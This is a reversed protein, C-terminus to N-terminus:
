ISVEVKEALDIEFGIMCLDMKDFLIPEEYIRLRIDEPTNEQYHNMLFQITGQDPVEIKVKALGDNIMGIETAAARSLDIIRKSNQPLRDNVRVWVVKDNKLNTVKLMTGFPLNKHAATMREMDFTEGNATRKLHFKRGYYSAIGEQIKLSDEENPKLEGASILLPSMVMLLILVWNKIKM